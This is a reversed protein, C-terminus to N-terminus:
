RRGGDEDIHELLDAPDEYVGGASARVLEDEGYGGSLLGVGPAGARRAALMDWVSDGVVCASEIPQQLRAAAKGSTGGNGGLCSSSTCMAPFPSAVVFRRRAIQRASGSATSFSAQPSGVNRMRSRIKAMSFRPSPRMETQHLDVGSSRSTRSSAAGCRNKMGGYTPEFPQIPM